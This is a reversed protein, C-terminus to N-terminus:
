APWVAISSRFKSTPLPSIMPNRPGFPAPLLVVMRMRELKMGGVEPRAVSRRNRYKRAIARLGARMETVHRFIDREIVVHAHRLIEIVAGRQFAHRMAADRLPNAIHFFKASQFVHFFFEDARERFTVPLPDAQGIREHVFRIKQNEILRGAAEIRVLDPLHAVQDLIEAFLVGNQKGGVNQGFHLHGAAADDDDVFAPDFRAIRRLVQEALDAGGAANEQFRFDAVIVAHFFNFFIAPTLSTM